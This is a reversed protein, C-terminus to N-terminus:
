DVRKSRRELRGQEKRVLPQRLRVRGDLLGDESMEVARLPEEANM